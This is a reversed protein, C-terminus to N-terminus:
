THVIGHIKSALNKFQYAHIKDKGHRQFLAFELPFPFRKHFDTSDGAALHIFWANCRDTETFYDKGDWFVPKFLMFSLPSSWVFGHQFYHALLAEFSDGPFHKALWAQARQWPQM